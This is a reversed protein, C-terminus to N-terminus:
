TEKRLSDGETIVEEEHHQIDSTEQQKLMNSSLRQFIKAKFADTVSSIMSNTSTKKKQPGYNKLGGLRKLNM